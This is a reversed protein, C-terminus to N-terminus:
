QESLAFFNDLLRFNLSRTRAAIPRYVEIIEDKTRGFEALEDSYADCWRPVEDPDVERFTLESM